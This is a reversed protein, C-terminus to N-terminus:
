FKNTKEIDKKGEVKVDVDIIILLFVYTFLWVHM